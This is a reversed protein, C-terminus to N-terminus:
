AARNGLREPLLRGVLSRSGIEHLATEDVASLHRVTAPNIERKFALGLHGQRAWIVRAPVVVGGLLEIEIDDGTNAHLGGDAIMCGLRSINGCHHVRREGKRISTVETESVLRQARREDM